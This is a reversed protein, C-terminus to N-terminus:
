VDFWEKFEPCYDLFKINKEKEQERFENINSNLFSPIRCCPSLKGTKDITLNLFPQSCLKKYQNM